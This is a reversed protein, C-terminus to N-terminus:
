DILICYGPYVIIILTHVCMDCQQGLLLLAKAVFLVGAEAHPLGGGGEPTPTRHQATAPVPRAWASHAPHRPADRDGHHLRGM